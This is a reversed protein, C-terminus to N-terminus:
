VRVLWDGPAPIEGRQVSEIHKLIKLTMQPEPDLMISQPSSKLTEQYIFEGIPNIVAATGCAFVERIRKAKIEQVLESFSIKEERPTYGMQTALQLVSRRTVGNLICGNLQPTVLDNGRIAFFNMGGLEDIYERHVADLFLVQDCDKQAALKQPYISAAYNAATKVEGTGGPFARVFDKSVFVRAPRIKGSHFYSGAISSMIYFQYTKSAGVKIKADSAFMFPRLYLSHGAENPVNNEVFKVYEKLCYVFIDEPIEAMIMRRSSQRFREAHLDPRFIGVSGDKLRYAKMGEFISQGYHLATTAPSLPQDELPLISCSFDNAEDINLDMRLIHPAFITGFPPHMEYKVPPLPKCKQIKIM